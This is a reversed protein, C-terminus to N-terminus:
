KLLHMSNNKKENKKQGERKNWSTRVIWDNRHNCRSVKKQTLGDSARMQYLNGDRITTAGDVQTERTKELTLEGDETKQQQHHCSHDDIRKELIPEM